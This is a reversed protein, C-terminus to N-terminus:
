TCWHNVTYKGSWVLWMSGFRKTRVKSQYVSDDIGPGFVFVTFKERLIDRQLSCM